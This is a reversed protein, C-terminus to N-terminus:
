LKLLASAPSDVPQGTLELRPQPDRAIARASGSYRRDSPSDAWKPLGQWTGDKRLQTWLKNAGFWSLLRRTDKTRCPSPPVFPDAPAKTIAWCEPAVHGRHAGGIVDLALGMTLAVVAILTAPRVVPMASRRRGSNRKTLADLGRWGNVNSECSILRVASVRWNPLRFDKARFLRHADARAYQFRFRRKAPRGASVMSPFRM